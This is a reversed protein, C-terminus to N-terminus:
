IKKEKKGKKWEFYLTRIRQKIKLGFNADGVVRIINKHSPFEYMVFLFRLFMQNQFNNIKTVM